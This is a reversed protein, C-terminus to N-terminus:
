ELKYVEVLAVGTASAKGQVIATYAGPVLTILIASEKEDTPALGTASIAAEQTQTWDDNSAITNKGSLVHLTPDPLPNPVGLQGLSPGIARVLITSSGSGAPGVIFGSIMVDSGTQVLARTSINLVQRTPPRIALYQPNAFGNAFITRSGTPPIKSVAGTANDAVFLDGRGDFVLGTPQSFGTAFSSKVGAPTFKFVTGSGSDAEYLNNLADITLDDPSHLGTAFTSRLGAPTFKFITGSGFDAEFLNGTHDFVLGAPHNLGTAFVSRAGAPTIKLIQGSGNDAVFLIGASNFALGYPQNLSSAFTSKTGDPTFKYVANAGYDAVYFNALADFAVGSPNVLGSALVFKEGTPTIRYVNGAGFNALYLDGVDARVIAATLLTAGVAILSARFLNNM